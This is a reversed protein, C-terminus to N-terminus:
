SFTGKFYRGGTFVNSYENHIKLTTEASVVRNAERSPGVIFYDIEKKIKDNAHLNNKVTSKKPSIKNQKNMQKHGM